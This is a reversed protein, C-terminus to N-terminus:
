SPASSGTIGPVFILRGPFRGACVRVRVSWRLATTWTAIQPPLVRRPMAMPGTPSTMATAATIIISMGLPPPYEVAWAAMWGIPYVQGVPVAAGALAALIDMLGAALETVMEAGLNGGDAGPAAAAVGGTAVVQDMGYGSGVVLPVV